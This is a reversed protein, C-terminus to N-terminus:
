GALTIVRRRRAFLVASIGIGLTVSGGAILAATSPGTIPLGGTTGGQQVVHIAVFADEVDHGNGIVTVTLPVTPQIKWTGGQNVGINRFTGNAPSVYISLDYPKAQASGAKATVRFPNDAGWTSSTDGPQLAEPLYCLLGRIPNGSSVCNSGRPATVTLVEEFGDPYLSVFIGDAPAQGTAHLTLPVDATGGAALNVKEPVLPRVFVDPINSPFGDNTWATAGTQRQTSSANDARATILAQGSENYRRTLMAWRITLTASSGAALDGIECSAGEEDAVCDYDDAVLDTAMGRSRTLDLRVTVNHATDTGTNDIRVDDTVLGAPTYGLYTTPAATIELDATGAAMAPTTSVALIGVVGLAGAQCLTGLAVACRALRWKRVFRANM